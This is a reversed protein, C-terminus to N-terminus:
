LKPSRQTPPNKSAQSIHAHSLYLTHLSIGRIPTNLEVARTIRKTPKQTKVLLRPTDFPYCPALLRENVVRMKVSPVSAHVFSDHM